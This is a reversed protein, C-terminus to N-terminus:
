QHDPPSVQGSRKCAAWLIFAIFLSIGLLIEM